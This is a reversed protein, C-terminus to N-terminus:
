RPQEAFLELVGQAFHEPRHHDRLRADARAIIAPVDASGHLAMVADVYARAMQQDDTLDDLLIGAGGGLVEGIGGINPAVVPLGAAMAELIANPLGDFHATYLFAAYNAPLVGFSEYAGMLRITSLGRIAERLAAEAPGTGYVDIRWAPDIVALRRAILPLLEPRKQAHLRSAWLLRKQRSLPRKRQAQDVSAYIAKTRAPLPLKGTAAALFGEHDSLLFRLHRANESLWTFNSGTAFRVGGRTHVHECFYYFALQCQPIESWYETVFANAFSSPKLHLRAEKAVSQILRLALLPVAAPCAWRTAIAHLDVFDSGSPLLNLWGHREAQEGSLVLLRFEPKAEALVKLASLIYKEAGGANLDPVLLVDTYNEANLAVCAEYYASGPALSGNRNSGAVHEDLLGFDVAPDIRNAARTLELLVHSSRMAERVQEWPEFQGSLVPAAHYTEACLERYTKPEFYVSHPILKGGTSKMISGPRQRYFLVAGDAARFRFGKALATVNFHWDEFARRGGRADVYPVVEFVTRAAFIRSLFCNEGWLMLPSIHESGDYKWMHATAGFALLYQPLVICGEGGKRAAGLCADFFNFSVLDDGDATAVYRGRTQALGANRALGVSGLDVETLQVPMLGRLMEAARQAAAWTEADPRDLVMQTEFSVGSRRSFSVAELLSQATRSLYAGERHLNLVISIDPTIM